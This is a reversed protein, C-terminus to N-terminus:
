ARYIICCNQSTTLRLMPQNPRAPLLNPDRPRSPERFGDRMTPAPKGGDVARLGDRRATSIDVVDRRPSLGAGGWGRPACRLPPNAGMLSAVDTVAIPPYTRVVGDRRYVRGVGERADYPRTQGRLWRHDMGPTDDAAALWKGQQTGDLADGVFLVCDGRNFQETLELPPQIPIDPM